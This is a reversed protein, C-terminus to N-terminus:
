MRHHGDLPHRTPVAPAVSDWPTAPRAVACSRCADGLGQGGEEGDGGDLKGEPSKGRRRSSLLARQCHVSVFTPLDSPSPGKGSRAAVVLNRRNRVRGVKGGFRSTQSWLPRETQGAAAADTFQGEGVLSRVGCRVGSFPAAM